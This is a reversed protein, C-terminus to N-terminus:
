SEAEVNKNVMDYRTVSLKAAALEYLWPPLKSGFRDVLWPYLDGFWSTPLLLFSVFLSIISVAVVLVLMLIDSKLFASGATATIYVPVAVAIGLVIGSVQAAIFQRWTVGALRISLNALLVYRAIGALTVAVAMGELGFPLLLWLAVVVFVLYIVQRGCESFVYGRAHSVAGFVRLMAL